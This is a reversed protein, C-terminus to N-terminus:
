YFGSVTFIDSATIWYISLYDLELELAFLEGINPIHGFCTNICFLCSFLSLIFVFAAYKCCSVQVQKCVSIRMTFGFLPPIDLCFWQLSLSVQTLWPLSVFCNVHVKVRPNVLHHSEEFIIVLPSSLCHFRHHNTDRPVKEYFSVRCGLYTFFFM